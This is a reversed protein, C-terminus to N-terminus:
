VWNYILDLILLDWKGIIKSIIMGIDSLSGVWRWDIKGLLLLENDEEPCPSSVMAVDLFTDNDEGRDLPEADWM